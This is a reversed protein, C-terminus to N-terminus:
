AIARCVTLGYIESPAGEQLVEGCCQLTTGTTLVDDVLLITKDRIDHKLKLRFREKPLEVREERRLAAQSYDGSRRVLIDCVPVGLLEGMREALLESQNFGRSLWRTTSIPVPVILDPLPWELHCHQAVLYAGLDKALYPLGGYKLRQVLTAAPGAYDFVAAVRRLHQIKGSCEGCPGAGETQAFCYSCREAPDVQDLLLVCDQCFLPAQDAIVGECHLCHSPFILKSLASM